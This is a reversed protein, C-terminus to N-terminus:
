SGGSNLTTNAENSTKADGEFEYEGSCECVIMGKIYMTAAVSYGVLGGCARCFDLIVGKAKGDKEITRKESRVKPM